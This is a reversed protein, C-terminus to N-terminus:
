PKVREYLSIELHYGAGGVTEITHLQAEVRLGGLLAGVMLKNLAKVHEQIDAAVQKKDIDRPDAM